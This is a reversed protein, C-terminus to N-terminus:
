GPSLFITVTHTATGIPGLGDRDVSLDEARYGGLVLGGGCGRSQSIRCDVGPLRTKWVWGYARVLLFVVTRKRGLPKQATLLGTPFVLKM